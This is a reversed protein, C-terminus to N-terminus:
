IGIADEKKSFFDDYNISSAECGTADSIYKVVQGTILDTAERTYFHTM